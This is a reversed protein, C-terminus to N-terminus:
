HEPTGLLIGESWLLDDADARLAPVERLDIDEGAEGIGAVAARRLAETRGGAHGGHVILLRRKM